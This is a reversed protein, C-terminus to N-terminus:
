PYLEKHGEMHRLTYNDVVTLTQKREPNIREVNPETHEKHGMGNIKVEM